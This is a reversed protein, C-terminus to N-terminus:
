ADLFMGFRSCARGRRSSHGLRRVPGLIFKASAVEVGPVPWSSVVGFPSLMVSSLVGSRIPHRVPKHSSTRNVRPMSGTPVLM